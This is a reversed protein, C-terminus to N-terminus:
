DDTKRPGKWNEVATQKGRAIALSGATVNKTITSGAAITSKEGLTVPAVLATNSGVFVGDEITTIHKAVGDYNCTITGAGVNVDAGVVADGIYALHNAKSNEGIESKKIEVFNGVHVSAALKTGPRLRAFPGVICGPGVIAGDIVSNARIEVGDGIESDRIVCNPGISVDRGIRCSGEFVCNIDAISDGAIEMRGRIDSRAPDVLHLGAAMAERAARRRYADELIALQELNNVGRAEAEDQGLIAKVVLGAAQAALVIDPLLYEKQDNETTLTDLWGPLLGSDAIMVGTNIERILREEATADREEVIARITDGEGRIVRGYNFPNPVEVTLVGLDCRADVMARLTDGSILPADGLLILLRSDPHLHPVVQMVAHGTGKQEAQHVFNVSSDAFAAKVEEAGRGVVVHVAVPELTAITDLLHALMPRGAITHLAKPKASKMRKGLGAALVCVELKTPM